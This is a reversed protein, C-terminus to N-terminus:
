DRPRAAAAEAAQERWRENNVGAILLWLQLPIESIASAGAIFPFLRAGLPPHIYLFWGLGDIMLLLGLIRPLFKSRAILYGVLACWVGFFVLYLDFARGNLKLLTYALAQLQATNFAALTSSGNLVVWPGLYLLATVAQIACGPLIVFVALKSVTRNVPKLLDHFLLAWALHFVVAAVSLAFGFWYLRLHGTINAATAAANGSVILSGLISVQGSASTVGELAEFVGALRAKARPTMATM